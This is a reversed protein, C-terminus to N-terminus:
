PHGSLLHQIHKHLSWLCSQTTLVTWLRATSFPARSRHIVLSSSPTDLPLTNKWSCAMLDEMATAYLCVCLFVTGWPSLLSYKDLHKPTNRTMEVVSLNLIFSICWRHPLYIVVLRKGTTSLLKGTFGVDCFLWSGESSSSNLRIIKYM